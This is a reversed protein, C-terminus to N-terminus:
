DIFKVKRMYRVIKHIYDEDIKCWTFKLTKLYNSTIENQQQITYNYVLDKNDTFDNIIGLLKNQKIEDGSIEEIM